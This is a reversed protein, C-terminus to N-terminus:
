RIWQQCHVEAVLGRDIRLEGIVEHIKALEDAIRVHGHSVALVKFAKQYVPNREKVLQIQSKYTSGIDNISTQTFAVPIQDVTDCTTAQDRRTGAIKGSRRINFHTIADLINELQEPNVEDVPKGVQIRYGACLWSSESYKESNLELELRTDEEFQDLDDSGTTRESIVILKKQRM